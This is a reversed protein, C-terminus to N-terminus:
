EFWGGVADAMQSLASGENEESGNESADEGQVHGRNATSAQRKSAVARPPLEGYEPEVEIWEQLTISVPISDGDETTEDHPITLIIMSEYVDVKTQVTVITNSRWAEYLARYAEKADDAARAEISISTLDTIIHDSRISGDEVAFETARKATEVSVSMPYVSAFLPQLSDSDLIVIDSIM